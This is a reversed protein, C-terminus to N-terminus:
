RAEFRADFFRVRVIKAAPISECWRGSPFCGPDQDGTTPPGPRSTAKARERSQMRGNSADDRDVCGHQNAMREIQKKAESKSCGLRKFCKGRRRPPSCLGSALSQSSTARSSNEAQSFWIAANTPSGTLPPKSAGGSHIRDVGALPVGTHLGRHIISHWGSTV